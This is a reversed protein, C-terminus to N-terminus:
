ACVSVFLTADSLTSTKPPLAATVVPWHLLRLAGGSAQAIKDRTLPKTLHGHIPLHQMQAVDKPHLSTTLLIIVVAPNETPARQAYAQLFGFGNMLPMNMDLLILAPCTLSTARACHTHLLDLAVQGNGAVLV